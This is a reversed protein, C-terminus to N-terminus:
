IVDLGLRSRSRATLNAKSLDGGYLESVRPNMVRFWVPPIAAMLIMGAYGSPLNPAGEWNRLVQYPRVPYAHHDSHRQLHYLFVNTIRNNSNWSHHPQCKEYRGNALKQRLLGYHEIYNVIELLGFGIVAQLALWWIVGPGAYAIAAGFLAVTMSWSQLNKNTWHLAPLGARNLRESELRWASRASGIVTRPLFAWFSEGYRSSAPDEPTSVNRHHGRNHEVFFHGYASQALAIRSVWQQLRGPKHGMEHAANIGLGASNGVSVALAVQAVLGLDNTAMWWLALAFSAYQLPVYAYVVARYYRSNAIDEMAADSLNENDTGALLDLTPIIIWILVPSLALWWMSGFLEVLLISVAPLQAVATGQLWFYKRRDREVTDSTPVNLAAVTPM